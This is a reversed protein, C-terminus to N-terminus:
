KPQPVKIKKRAKRRTGVLLQDLPSAKPEIKAPVGISSRGLIAQVV